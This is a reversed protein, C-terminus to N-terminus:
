KKDKKSVFRGTSVDFDTSSKKGLIFWIIAIALIIGAAIGIILFVPKGGDDQTADVKHNGKDNANTVKIGTCKIEAIDTGTINIASILDFNNTGYASVIADYTFTASKDDFEKPTVRAWVEGNSNAMATDPSEWSQIVLEVPYEVEAKELDEGSKKDKVEYSVIIESDKTLRSMDFAKFDVKLSSSWGTVAIAESTDVDVDGAAFTSVATGVAVVAALAFSAITSIIKKMFNMKGKM